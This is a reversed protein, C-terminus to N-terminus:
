GTWDTGRRPPTAGAAGGRASHAEKEKRQTGGAVGSGTEARPTQALARRRPAGEGRSSDTREARRRDGSKGLYTGDSNFFHYSPGHGTILLHGDHVQRHHSDCSVYIHDPHHGKKWGFVHHLDVRGKRGCGPVQCRRGDRDLVRNRVSPPISRRVRNPTKRLDHLECDCRIMELELPDLPIRGDRTERAVEKCSPCEHVVVRYNKNGGQGDGAAWRRCIEALAESADFDECGVEKRLRDIAEDIHVEKGGRFRFARGVELDKGQAARRLEYITLQRAKALWENLDNPTAVRAVETAAVYSLEGNRFTEILEPLDNRGCIRMLDSLKSSSVGAVQSAYSSISAYGLREYLKSCKINHLEFAMEATVRRGARALGLVREHAAMAALLGEETNRIM